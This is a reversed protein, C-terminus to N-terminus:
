RMQYLRIVEFTDASSVVEMRASGSVSEFSTVIAASGDAEVERLPLFRMQPHERWFQRVEPLSQALSWWSETSAVVDCRDCWSFISRPSGPQPPPIGIQIQLPRGCRMCPVIGKVANAHYYDHIWALVRSFAPKFAKVGRLFDAGAHVMMGVSDNCNPCRLRLEGGPSDLWGLLRQVGCQPCWIHTEQWGDTESAVLGYAAAEDRFDTVLVRRLALKGRHLRVALTGENVGLRAAIEAQPLEEIYHQVLAARTEPPLLALARDLLTALEDRELDIALDCEDAPGEDAKLDTSESTSLVIHARARSRDRIWHRCVNRAIASLWPTVGHADTLQHHRHWAILLTEQALDEAASSDGTLHACLRVLRAREAMFLANLTSTNDAPTTAM